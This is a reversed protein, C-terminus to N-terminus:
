PPSRHHPPKVLSKLVSSRHSPAAGITGPLETPSAYPSRRALRQWNENRKFLHTVRETRISVGRCASSSPLFGVPAANVRQQVAHSKSRVDGRLGSTHPHGVVLHLGECDALEAALEAALVALTDSCAQM